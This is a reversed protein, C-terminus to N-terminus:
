CPSLSGAEERGRRLSTRGSCPTPCLAPCSLLAPQTRRKLRSLLGPPYNLFPKALPAEAPQGVNVWAKQPRATLSLSCGCCSPFYAEATVSPHMAGSSAAKDTPVSQCSLGMWTTLSPHTTEKSQFVM